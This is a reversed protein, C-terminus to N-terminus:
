VTPNESHTLKFVVGPHAVYGAPLFKSLRIQAICTACSIAINHHAHKAPQTRHDLGRPSHRATKPWKPRSLFRCTYLRPKFLALFLFCWFLSPRPEFLSKPLASEGQTILLRTTALSEGRESTGRTRTRQATNRTVIQSHINYGFHQGAM